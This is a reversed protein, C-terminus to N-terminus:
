DLKCINVPLASMRPMANIAQRQSVSSTLLNVSVGDRDPDVRGPLGGFGHTISIVGRRLNEDVRAVTELRGWPSEVAVRDGERLNEARMDEPNM